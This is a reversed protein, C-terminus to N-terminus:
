DESRALIAEHAHRLYEAAAPLGKKEALQALVDVLEELEVDVSAPVPDEQSGNDCLLQLSEHTSSDLWELAFHDQGADFVWTQVAGYNFHEAM